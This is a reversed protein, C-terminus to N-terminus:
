ESGRWSKRRGKSASPLRPTAKAPQGPLVTAAAISPGPEGGFSSRTCGTRPRMKRGSRIVIKALRQDFLDSRALESKFDASGALVLGSINPRQGDPVYMQTATEAVKRVYNHRKELRLRAFRMASQGGRGHKKPLEVSVKCLSESLLNRTKLFHLIPKIPLEVSVKHIIERANGSLTGFLTGNGDMIIALHLLIPASHGTKQVATEPPTM